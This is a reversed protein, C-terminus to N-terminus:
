TSLNWDWVGEQAGAFALTLREESERLAAEARRRETIDRVIIQFADGAPEDIAAGTVDVDAIVGDLRVIRADAPAATLGSRWRAILEELAPRSDAHFLDLLPTGLIEQPAPAGVLRLASPNLFVVRTDQSIFIGDPSRQVLRQYREV